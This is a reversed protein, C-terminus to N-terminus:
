FMKYVPHGEAPKVGEWKSRYGMLAEYTAVAPFVTKASTIPGYLIFDAGMSVTYVSASVESAKYYSKDRRAKKWLSMGNAPACGAPYGYEDKVMRIAKCALALSSIDLVATDIIPKAVGAKEAMELLGPGGDMKKLLSLKGEPTPDYTSFAFVIASEIGADKITRLEAEKTTHSITSYVARSTLGVEEVYRVAHIRTEANVGDLLFPSDTADSVFEVYRVMGEPTDGVVDVMCPNGTIEALEDQANLIEEAKAKNFLGKAPNEVIKHGSYFITGILVTPTEVREGGIKVGGIDYVRQKKQSAQM